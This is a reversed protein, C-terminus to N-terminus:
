HTLGHEPEFIMGTVPRDHMAKGAWATWGLRQAGGIVAPPAAHPKLQLEIEWCYEFGIFTRVLETLVPLNNGGPLFRLYDELTLPGIILRFKYQM